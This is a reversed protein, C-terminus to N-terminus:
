GEEFIKDTIHSVVVGGNLYEHEDRPMHYDLFVLVMLSFRSNSLWETADVYLVSHCM